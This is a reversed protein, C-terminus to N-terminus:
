VNFQFKPNLEKLEKTMARLLEKKEESSEQSNEHLVKLFNDLKSEFLKIKAKESLEKELHFISGNSLREIFGFSETSVNRLIRITEAIHNAISLYVHVNTNTSGRLHSLANAALKYYFAIRGSTDSNKIIKKYYSGAHEYDSFVAVACLGFDANEKYVTYETRCDPHEHIYSIVQFDYASVYPKNESFANTSVMSELLEALYMNVEEDFPDKGTECHLTIRSKLINELFYFKTCEKEYKKLDLYSDASKTQQM